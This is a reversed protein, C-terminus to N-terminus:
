LPAPRTLLHWRFVDFAAIVPLGLFGTILVGVLLLKDTWPQDGALAIKARDRLLAPNVRFVFIATVTRVILLVGLLVWARWWAITGAPVFLCAAILATDFVLRVLVRTM